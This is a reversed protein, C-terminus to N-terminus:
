GKQQPIFKVQTEIYPIKHKYDLKTNKELTKEFDFCVFSQQVLFPIDDSQKKNAGAHVIAPKESYVMFRDWQVWTHGPISKPPEQRAHEKAIFIGNKHTIIHCWGLTARKFPHAAIKELADLSVPRPSGGILDILHALVRLRIDEPSQQYAGKHIVAFGRNDIDTHLRIFSDTYFELAQRARALRKASLLVGAKTLGMRWLDPLHARWRVREYATDRNMPDEAWTIRAETLTQIIDAKDVGLLPRLLTLDGRKSLAQMASLGDTGSGRALRAFFTEAQDEAHHAVCLYRIHHTQCFDSLLRYRIDRAAEEIRTAPKKGNWTLIHHTIGYTKLVTGLHNAEQAAEPRLNHNVTLATLTHGQKDAWKKLFLTLFLSDAGGSVGVAIPCGTPLHFGDMLQNFDTQSIISVGT